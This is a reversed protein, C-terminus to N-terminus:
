IIHFFFLLSLNKKKVFTPIIDLTPDLPWCELHRGLFEKPQDTEKLFNRPEPRTLDQTPTQGLEDRHQHKSGIIIM